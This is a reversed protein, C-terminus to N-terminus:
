RPGSGDADRDQGGRGQRDLTLTGTKADMVYADITADVADSVYVFTAAESMSTMGITLLAFLAASAFTTM